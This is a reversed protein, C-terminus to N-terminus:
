ADSAHSIYNRRRASRRIGLVIAICLIIAPALLMNILELRHGLHEIKERRGMNVQRLQAEAQRKALQIKKIKDLVSSAIVQQDQKKASAQLENLEQAYGNIKAQLESVKQLTVKEAEAEIKDVVTFPRKVNGRSRISILDGSGSLTEITNLLLAANDGVVSLFPGYSQFAMIDTIFDVDAFVAVACDKGETLGTLVKMKTEKTDGEDKKETADDTNKEGDKDKDGTEDKVEIGGPFATKFGGSVLYGMYVPKNGDFFNDMLRGPDMMTLEFSNATWTNGQATTMLLPTLKVQGTDAENPDQPKDVKQLVGAYLLRVQNLDATIPNDTNFCGSQLDLVSIIKQSRQDRQQAALPALSRDGAFTDAPMELHWHRLLSNLDSSNKTMQGMMRQQPTPADIFAFPDLCIITRGGKLVFQDIAWLTKEPLDKPHIILLIDIDEPIQTVENEVQSIEYKQRLQAVITWAPRPRQGQLEMMQAMYGTVDEGMVPLSSLIGIKRKQRTLAQDILYSIDYEVFNQRDPSFFPISRFAGFQTQMVLGFFFNEEETIPFAQLGYRLAEQEEDSFPRPDILSFEIMGKGARQYEELLAQVFYYYNNYFKIQDPAKMAATQAYFLKVKLPQKLKGLIAKTGDSLTYLKQETIDLRASKGVNQFISITSFMIIAVFIVGVIAQLTRNM